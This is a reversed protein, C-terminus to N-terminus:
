YLINHQIIPDICVFMEEERSYLFQGEYIDLYSSGLYSHDKMSELIDIDIDINTSYLMTRLEKFDEKSYEILPIGNKEESFSILDDLNKEFNFLLKYDSMENINELFDMEYLILIHEEFKIFKIFKFNFIKTRRLYSIKAFDFSLGYVRKENKKLIITTLGSGIKDLDSLFKLDSSEELARFLINSHLDKKYMSKIKKLIM